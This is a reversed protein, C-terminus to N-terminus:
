PINFPQLPLLHVPNFKLLKELLDITLDSAKPFM